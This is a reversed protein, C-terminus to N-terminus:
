LGAHLRRPFHLLLHLRRVPVPLRDALVRRRAPEPVTLIVTLLLLDASILALERRSQGVTAARLQAIGILVFLLLLAEYYLVEWRPNIFVLLVAVVALAAIRARTAIRQGEMKEVELAKELHPNRQAQREDAQRTSWPRRWLTRMWRM